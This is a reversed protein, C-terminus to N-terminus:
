RGLVLEIGDIILQLKASSLRGVRETLTSKDVTVVQSVNAVSSRDLGTAKAELLVNGPADAWNLNSTMAVCMVTAIRSRNFADCQVVVVPRRFGPGSGTPADLDAWWVEGQAIV